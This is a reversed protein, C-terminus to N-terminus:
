LPKLARRPPTDKAREARIGAKLLERIVLSVAGKGGDDRCRKVRRELEEHIDPTVTFTYTIAM